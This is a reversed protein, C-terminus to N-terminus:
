ENRNILNPQNTQQVEITANMLDKFLVRSDNPSSPEYEDDMIYSTGNITRNDHMWFAAIADHIYDPASRIDLLKIKRMNSYDMSKVGASDEGINRDSPYKTGRFNCTVRLKHQFNTISGGTIISYDYSGWRNENSWVWLFTCDHSTQLDFCESKGDFGGKSVIINDICLIGAGAVPFFSFSLSGNVTCILTETFTGNGSRTTGLTGGAKVVVNGSMYNVVDYTITYEVGVELTAIAIANIFDGAFFFCAAPLGVAINVNGIITWGQNTEFTDEFINGPQGAAGGLLGIQLERCGNTVTVDEAWNFDVTIVNNETSGTIALAPVNDIFVGTEVNYIAVSYDTAMALQVVRVNSIAGDFTPGGLFRIGGSVPAVYYFTYSGNATVIGIFGGTGSNSVGLEFSVATQDSVTFEIKYYNNITFISAQRLSSVLSTLHFIKGEVIGWDQGCWSEIGCISNHSGDPFDGDAVLNVTEAALFQFTINDGQETPQCFLQNTGCDEAKPPAFLKVSGFPLYETPKGTFQAM